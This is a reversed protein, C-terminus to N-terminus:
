RRSDVVLGDREDLQLLELLSALQCLTKEDRQNRGDIGLGCLLHLSVEHDASPEALLQTELLIDHHALQETALGISHPDLDIVVRDRGVDFAEGGSLHGLDGDHVLGELHLHPGVALEFLQALQSLCQTGFRLFPKEFFGLPHLFLGAVQHCHGFLNGIAVPKTRCEVVPCEPSDTGGFGLRKIGQPLFDPDQCGDFDQLGAPDHCGVLGPLLQSLM